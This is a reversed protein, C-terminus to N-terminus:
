TQYLKSRFVIRDALKQYIYFKLCVLQKGKGMEPQLLSHGNALPQSSTPLPIPPRWSEELKWRCSEGQNSELGGIWCFERM